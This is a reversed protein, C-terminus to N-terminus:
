LICNSKRKQPSFSSSLNEQRENSSGLSDFNKLSNNILPMLNKQRSFNLRMLKSMEMWSFKKLPEKYYIWSIENFIDFYRQIIKRNLDSDIFTSALFVSADHVSFRNTYAFVLKEIHSLSIRSRKLLTEHSWKTYLQCQKCFFDEDQQIYDRSWIQRSCRHCSQSNPLPFQDIQSIM